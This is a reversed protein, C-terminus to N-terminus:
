MITVKTTLVLNEQVSRRLVLNVVGPAQVGESNTSCPFMGGVTSRVKGRETATKDAKAKESNALVQMQEVCAWINMLVDSIAHLYAKFM